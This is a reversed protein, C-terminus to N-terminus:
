GEFVAKVKVYGDKHEPAANVLRAAIEPLSASVAGGERIEDNRFVNKLVTGGTLPEANETNVEGLKAVFELVASLEKEYKQEEEVTLEIRALKAINQVDKKTILSAM